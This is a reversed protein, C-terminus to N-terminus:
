NIIYKISLGNISYNLCEFYEYKVLSDVAIVCLNFKLVMLFKLLKLDSNM